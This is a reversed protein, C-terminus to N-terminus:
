RPTTLQLTVIRQTRGITLSLRIEKAGQAEEGPIGPFFLVGYAIQQPLIQDNQMSKEAIDKRVKDQVTAYGKAGGIIAGASAGAVAGKGMADGVNEGTIVSVALGALAGAAGMLVSPKAASKATEGIDVHASARKYAREQSLIPWAKNANDVLFTQEPNIQVPSNSDNVFILQVPLLGAKIANFGFAKEAKKADAYVQASLRLGNDLVLGTKADPIEVPAVRDKYTCGNVIWSCFVFSLFLAVLRTQKRLATM